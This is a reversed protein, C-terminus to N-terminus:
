NSDREDSQKDAAEKKRQERISPWLFVRVVYLACGLAFAGEGPLPAFRLVLGIAAWFLYEAPSKPFWEPPAMSYERSAKWHDGVPM